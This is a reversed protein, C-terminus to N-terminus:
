YEIALNGGATLSFAVMGNAHTFPLATGNLTVKKATRGAPKRISLSVKSGPYAIRGRCAGSDSVDLTLTTNASVDIWRDGAYTLQKGRKLALLSPSGSTERVFAYKANAQLQGISIATGGNIALGHTDTNVGLTLTGGVSGSGALRTLQAAPETTKCPLLLTLFDCDSGQRSARLYSHDVIQDSAWDTPGKQATLTAGPNLFITRLEVAEGNANWTDWTAEDTSVTLTGDFQGSGLKGGFHLLQDYRHTNASDLEDLIVVYEKAPFFISRRSSVDPANAYGNIRTEAYDFFPSTFGEDLIAPDAVPQTDGGYRWVKTPTAPATGIPGEMGDITVLNHAAPSESIWAHEVSDDGYQRGDGPDILLYAGRAYMSISTQSPQDHVSRCPEDASDLLLWTDDATWGTRFVAATKLIQSTYAPPHAAADLAQDYTLLTLVPMWATRRTFTNWYWMQEAGNPMLSAVVENTAIPGMWGTNVTPMSGNPMTLQLSTKYMLQLRHDFGRIGAFADLGTHHHYALLFPSLSTFSDNEYSAGEKYIGDRAVVAKAQFTPMGNPYGGGEYKDTFLDDLIYDVREAAGEYSGLALSAMGLGGAIRMRVNVFYRWTTTGATGGYWPPNQYLAYTKLCAAEIKAKLDTDEAPSLFPQIWDYAMGYNLLEGGWTWGFVNWDLDYTGIQGLFNVAQDRFAAGGEILYVFAMDRAYRSLFSEDQGSYALGTNASSKVQAYWGSWPNGGVKNRLTAVDSGGFFLMPHLPKVDGVVNVTRAGKAAAGAANTVTCMLTVSGVTGAKYTILNTGAGDVIKGNAARWVFTCGPQEPVAAANDATGSIVPSYASIAAMPAAVVAISKSGSGSAGAANTVKCTLSLTGAAGATYSIGSSTSGASIIGGSITWAYKCGTQVPVSAGNGATDATVVSAATIKTVPVAVVAIVKTGSVATGAANKVICKLSAAGPTGATYTVAHTGVGATIDANTASWVFTCGSQSPVYAPHGITGTTLPGSASITAVPMPLVTVTKSKTDVTGAANKVTCTLVLASSSGATYTISRSTKGSTIAGGSIGWDFTCGPQALVTAILGQKGKTVPSAATITANPANVITITKSSKTSVSGVTVTCSLTATGQSGAVYTTTSAGNPTTIAGGSITWVYKAGVTSPVQAVLGKANATVTSAAVITACTPVVKVAKSGTVSTGAPNKVICKLTATGPSGAKYTISHTGAGATVKGNTAVWVYTCGAQEPVAAVLGETGGVVPNEATIDAAPAPIISVDKIVSASAGKLDTLTCALQNTGASGATYTIAPSAAGATISGNSATWAYTWGSQVPVSARLGAAGATVPSAATIETCSATQISAISIQLAVVLLSRTWPM